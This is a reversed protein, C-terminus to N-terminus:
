LLLVVAVAVCSMVILFVAGIAALTLNPRCDAVRVRRLRRREETEDDM